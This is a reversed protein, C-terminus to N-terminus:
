KNNKLKALTRNLESLTVSCDLYPHTVDIYTLENHHTPTYFNTFFTYWTRICLNNRIGKKVSVKKYTKWFQNVNEINNIELQIKELYTNKSNRIKLKYKQKEEIFYTLNADCPHKKYARYLKKTLKKSQRCDLNYWPKNIKGCRIGSSNSVKYLMGIERTSSFVSRILNQYQMDPTEGSSDIWCREM